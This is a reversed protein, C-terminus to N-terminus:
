PRPSEPQAMPSPAHSKDNDKALILGVGGSLTALDQMTLQTPDAMKPVVSLILAAGAVTTKWSRLFAPM